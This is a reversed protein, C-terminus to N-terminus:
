QVNLICSILCRIKSFCVGLCRWFCLPISHSFRLHANGHRSLTVTISILSHSLFVMAIGWWINGHLTQRTVTTITDLYLFFNLASGYIKYICVFLHVYLWVGHPTKSSLWLGEMHYIIWVMIVAVEITGTAISVKVKVMVFFILTAWGRSVLACFRRHKLCEKNSM